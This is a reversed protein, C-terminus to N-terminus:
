CNIFVVQPMRVLAVIEPISGDSVVVPSYGLGNSPYDMQSKISISSLSLPVIM